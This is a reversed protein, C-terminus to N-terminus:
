SGSRSTTYEVMHGDTIPCWIWASGSGVQTCTSSSNWSRPEIGYVNRISESTRADRQQGRHALCAAKLSSRHRVVPEGDVRARHDRELKSLGSLATGATMRLLLMYLRGLRSRRTRCPRERPSRPKSPLRTATITTPVREFRSNVSRSRDRPLDPASAQLVVLPVALDQLEQAFPAQFVGGLEGALDVALDAHGLHDVELAIHNQDATMPWCLRYRRRPRRRRPADVSSATGDDAEGGRALPM